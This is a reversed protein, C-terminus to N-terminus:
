LTNGRRGPRCLRDCVIKEREAGRLTCASGHLFAALPARILRIVRALKTTRTTWSRRPSTLPTMSRTAVPAFSANVPRSAIPWTIPLHQM